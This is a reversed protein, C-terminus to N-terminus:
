SRFAGLWAPVLFEGTTLSASLRLTRARSANHQEAAEGIEALAGLARKALPYLAQGLQTPRAGHRGRFLLDQGIRRELSQIRKTTASQTLALADAADQISGSEVAAVFAALEGGSLPDAESFGQAM